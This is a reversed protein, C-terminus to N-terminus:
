ISIIMVVLNNVKLCYESDIKEWMSQISKQIDSLTVEHIEKDNAM